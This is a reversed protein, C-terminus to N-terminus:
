LLIKKNLQTIAAEYYGSKDKYRTITRKADGLIFGGRIQGNTGGTVPLLPIAEATLAL